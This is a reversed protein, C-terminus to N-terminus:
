LKALRKGMEEKLLQAASFPRIMVDFRVIQERDNWDILDVGHMIKGDVTTEFELVWSRELLWTRKYM